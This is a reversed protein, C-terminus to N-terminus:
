DVNPAHVKLNAVKLALQEVTGNIQLAVTCRGNPTSSMVYGTLGNAEPRAKLGSVQGQKGVMTAALRAAEEAEVEATAAAAVEAVKAKAKAAAAEEEAAEAAKRALM